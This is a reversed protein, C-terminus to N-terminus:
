KVTGNYGSLMIAILLGIGTMEATDSQPIGMINYCAEIQQAVLPKTPAMFVIKGRPYWRYFNYMVVAAIFTKGLGTPLVVLTNEYLSKAVINYQYERVPYNTPYIWIRGAVSDFGPLDEVNTTDTCTEDPSFPEDFESDFAFNNGDDPTSDNQKTLTGSKTTHEMLYNTKKRSWTNNSQYSTISPSRESTNHARESTNHAQERVSQELAAALLADDEDDSCLDVVGFDNTDYAGTQKSNANKKVAKAAWSEFLTSQKSM